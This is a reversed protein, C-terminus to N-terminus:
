LSVSEALYVLICDLQGGVLAVGVVCNSWSPCWKSWRPWPEALVALVARSPSLGTVQGAGGALAGAEALEALEPEAM